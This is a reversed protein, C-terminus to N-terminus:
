LKPNWSAEIKNKLDNLVEPKENALNLQEFPDKFINYLQIETNSGEIKIYWLCNKVRIKVIHIKLVRGPLLFCQLIPRGIDNVYYHVNSISILLVINVKTGLLHM